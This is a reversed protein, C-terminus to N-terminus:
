PDDMLTQDGWLIEQELFGWDASQPHSTAHVACAWSYRALCRGRHFFCMHLITMVM